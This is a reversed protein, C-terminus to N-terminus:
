WWKYVFTLLWQPEKRTNNFTFRILSVSVMLGFSIIKPFLLLLGLVVWIYLFNGFVLSLLFWANDLTKAYQVKLIEDFKFSAWNSVQAGHILVVLFYVLKMLFLDFWTLGHCIYRVLLM